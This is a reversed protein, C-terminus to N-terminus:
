IEARGGLDGGRQPRANDAANRHAEYADKLATAAQTNLEWVASCKDDDAFDIMVINPMFTKLYDGSSHRTAHVRNQAVRADIAERLCGTWLDNMRQSYKWLYKDRKKISGLAGTATWYIMGLVDSSHAPAAQAMQNFIGTQRTVNEELKDAYLRDTASTGGKGHYQLGIFTKDYAKPTDSKSDYLSQFGVIGRAALEAPTRLLTRIGKTSFACVVKGKLEELTKLNLNGGGTYIRSGLINRCAEAIQGWNSCKDFKLILFENRGDGKVFRRAQELINVLSIGYEGIIHTTEVHHKGALGEVPLRSRHAPLQAAAHYSVLEARANLLGGVSHALVRIDFIRVGCLAQELISKSQTRTAWDGSTIGADHSGAFVIDRLKRSGGLSFYDVNLTV